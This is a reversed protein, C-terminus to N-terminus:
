LSVDNWLPLPFSMCEEISHASYSHVDVSRVPDPGKEDVFAQLSLGGFDVDEVLEEPQMLETSSSGNAISRRPSAGMINQLVQLPHPVEPGPSKRIENRLSSGNPLRAAAPLSSTSANPTSLLSLSSSRPNLGPRVPLAGPGSLPYPGRRPAPSYPRGAGPPPPTGSPTSQSSRRDAWM